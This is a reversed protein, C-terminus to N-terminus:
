KYSYGSNTYGSSVCTTDYVIRNPYLITDSIRGIRLHQMRYPIQWARFYWDAPTSGSVSSNRTCIRTSVVRYSTFAGSVNSVLAHYVFESNEHLYSAIRMRSLLTEGSTIVVMLHGGFERICSPFQKARVQYEKGVRGITQQTASCM